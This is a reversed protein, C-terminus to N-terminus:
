LSPVAMFMTAQRKLFDNSLQLYKRQNQMNVIQPQSKSFCKLAGPLFANPNLPQSLTQNSIVLGQSPLRNKISGQHAQLLRQNFKNTQAAPLSTEIRKTSVPRVVPVSPSSFNSVKTRKVNDANKNTPNPLSSALYVEM